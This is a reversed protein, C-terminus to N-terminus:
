CEPELRAPGHMTKGQLAWLSIAGRRSVRAAATAFIHMMQVFMALYRDIWRYFSSVTGSIRGGKEKEEYTACPGRARPGIIQVWPM